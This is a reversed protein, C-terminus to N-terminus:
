SAECESYESAHSLGHSKRIANMEDTSSTIEKIITAILNDFKDISAIKADLEAYLSGLEEVLETHENKMNDRGKILAKIHNDRVTLENTISNDLTINVSSDKSNDM